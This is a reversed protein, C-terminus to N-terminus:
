LGEEFADMFEEWVPTGSDRSERVVKLKVCDGREPLGEAGLKLVRAVKNSLIEDEALSGVSEGGIYLYGASECLLFLQESSELDEAEYMGIRDWSGDAEYRYLEPAVDGQTVTAFSNEATEAIEASVDHKVTSVQCLSSHQSVTNPQNPSSFLALEGQARSTAGLAKWFLEM